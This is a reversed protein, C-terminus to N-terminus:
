PLVPAPASQKGLAEIIVDAISIGHAHDIDEDIFKVKGRQTKIADNGGISPSRGVM